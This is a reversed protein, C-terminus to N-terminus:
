FFCKVLSLTHLKIGLSCLFAPPLTFLSDNIDTQFIERVTWAMLPVAKLNFCNLDTLFQLISSSYDAMGYHLQVQEQENLVM